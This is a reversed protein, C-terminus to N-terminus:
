KAAAAAAYDREPSQSGGSIKREREVEAIMITWLM